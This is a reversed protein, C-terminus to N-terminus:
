CCEGIKISTRIGLGMLIKLLSKAQLKEPFKVKM